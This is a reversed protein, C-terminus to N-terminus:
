IGIFNAPILNKYKSLDVKEHPKTDYAIELESTDLHYIAIEVKGDGNYDGPMPIDGPKGILITKTSLFDKAFTIEWKGTEPTWTALDVKGDGDYDELVARSTKTGISVNIIGSSGQSCSSTSTEGLCSSLHVEYLSQEPKYIVYDAKKDNDIDSYITINLPSAGFSNTYYNNTTTLFSPWRGDNGNFCSVDTKSDGDIDAPLPLEAWDNCWYKTPEVASDSSRLIHWTANTRNFLAIDTKSDGDYDSPVPILLDTDKYNQLINTTLDVETESHDKGHIIHWTKKTPNFFAIDSIKDGDFDNSMANYIGLYPNLAIQKIYYSLEGEKNSSLFQELLKPFNASSVNSLLHSDVKYLEKLNEVQKKNSLALQAGKNLYTNLFIKRAQPLMLYRFMEPTVYLWNIKEEQWTKSDLLFAKKYNGIKDLVIERKVPNNPLDLPQILRRLGTNKTFIEDYNVKDTLVTQNKVRKSKLYSAFIIEDQYILKDIEEVAIKQIGTYKLSNNELSFIPKTKDGFAWFMITSTGFIIFFGIYFVILRVKKLGLYKEILSVVTPLSFAGLFNSSMLIRGNDGNPLTIVLSFIIAAIFFPMIFITWIHKQKFALFFGVAFLVTLIINSKSIDFNKILNLDGLKYFESLPIFSKDFRICNGHILTLLLTTTLLIGLKKLLDAEDKFKNIENQPTYFILLYLLIGLLLIVFKSFDIIALNSIFIGLLVIFKLNGENSFFRFTLYLAILFFFIGIGYSPEFFWYHILGSISASEILRNQTLYHIKDLLKEPILENPNKNFLSIIPGWALFVGFLVLCRNITNTNLFKLTLGYITLISLNLFLITLIDLSIEPHCGTIKSLTAGLINTGYHDRLDLNPLFSYKPPYIDNTLQNINFVHTNGKGLNNLKTTSIATTIYLFNIVGFLIWFYKDTNQKIIEFLNDKAILEILNAIAKDLEKFRWIILSIVVVLYAILGVLFSKTITAVLNVLILFSAAGISINILLELLKGEGNIKLEKRIVHGIFWFIFGILLSLITAFIIQM